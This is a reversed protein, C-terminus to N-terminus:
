TNGHMYVKEVRKLKCFGRQVKDVERKFLILGPRWMEFYCSLAYVTQDGEVGGGQHKIQIFGKALLEDIARTFRPQSIGYKNKAEAYSLTIHNENLCRRSSHKAGKKKKEFIRKGLFLLLLQPAFGKLSLYAKSEFLRREVFVGGSM